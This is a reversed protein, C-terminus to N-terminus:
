ICQRMTPHLDGHGVVRLSVGGGALMSLPTYDPQSCPPFATGGLSWVDSGNASGNLVMPVLTQFGHPGFKTPMRRLPGPPGSLVMSERGKWVYDLRKLLCQSSLAIVCGEGHAICDWSCSVMYM